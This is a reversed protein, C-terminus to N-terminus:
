KGHIVGLITGDDKSIRAEAVGGKTIKQPLSGTVIWTGKTLRAHYPKESPIREVGYIPEWVAVAIKIAVDKTPVFGEKPKFGFGGDEVALAQTGVFLDSMKFGDFVRWLVLVFCFVFFAATLGRSWRELRKVRHEIEM